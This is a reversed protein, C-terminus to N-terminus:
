STGLRVRVEGGEPDVRATWGHPIKTSRGPMLRALRGNWLVRGDQVIEVRPARLFDHARLLFRSRPPADPPPSGASPSSAVAVVNPAIWGLPRECVVPVRRAPWEGEELYRAVAAAAHRGSLAAVDAPEAGHLLNGAGFVGPRSCRLGADVAPGCTDRDLELGATVALEHDPIWDASFVVTDCAVSRVRGSDLDTLEVAEVRERGHIGSV